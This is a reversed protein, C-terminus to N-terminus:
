RAPDVTVTATKVASWASKAQGKLARVKVEYTKGKVFYLDDNQNTSNDLETGNKRNTTLTHWSSQGKVRYAVEYSDIESNENWEIKIYPEDSGNDDYYSVAIQPASLKTSSESTSAYYKYDFEESRNGYIPNKVDSANVGRVSISYDDGNTLYSKPIITSLTATNDFIGYTGSVYGKTKSKVYVNYGTANDSKSYEVKLGEPVATVKTIKTDTPFSDSDVGTLKFNYRGRLMYFNITYTGKPLYWSYKQHSLQGKAQVSPINFDDQADSLTIYTDSIQKRVDYIPMASLDLTVKQPKALTFQYYHANTSRYTKYLNLFGKVSQGLKINAPNEYTNTNRSIAYDDLSHKIKTLKIFSTKVKATRSTTTLKYNGARLYYVKSNKSNGAYPICKWPSTNVLTYKAKTNITVRGPVKLHLKYTNGKQIYSTGKIPTQITAAQASSNNVGLALAVGIAAAVGILYHKKM